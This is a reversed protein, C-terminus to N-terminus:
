AQCTEKEAKNVAWVSMDEGQAMIDLTLSSADQIM